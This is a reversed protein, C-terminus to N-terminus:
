QPQPPPTRKFAEWAAQNARDFAARSEALAKSYTAWSDAAVQKLRVEAETADAKMKKVVTDIDARRGAAFESAASNIKDAAERWAKVQAAALDKFTGQQDIKQYFTDVYTKIEAEFGTWGAELQPKTRAWVSESAEVQKKIIERFEDRRQNLDTILKEAKVKSDAQLESAKDELSALAADMEDIREKAWNLYFHMGSQQPM